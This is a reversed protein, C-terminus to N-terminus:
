SKKRRDYGPPTRASAAAAPRRTGSSACRDRGRRMELRLARVRRAHQAVTKLGRRNRRSRSRRRAAYPSRRAASGNHPRAMGYYIDFNREGSVDIGTPFVVNNVVGHM